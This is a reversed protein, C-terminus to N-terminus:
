DVIIRRNSEYNVSAIAKINKSECFPCHDLLDNPHCCFCGTNESAIWTKECDNCKELFSM